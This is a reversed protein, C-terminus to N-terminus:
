GTSWFGSSGSSCGCRRLSERNTNNQRGFILWSPNLVLGPEVIGELGGTVGDLNEEALATGGCLFGVYFRQDSLTDFHEDYARLITGSGSGGSVFGVCCADLDDGVVAQDEVGSRNVVIDGEVTNRYASSLGLVQDIMGGARSIREIQISTGGGVVVGEQEELAGPSDQLGLDGIAGEDDLVGALSDAELAIGRQGTVLFSLDNALDRGVPVEGDGLVQGLGVQSGGRIGM